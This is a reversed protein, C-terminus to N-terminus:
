CAARPLRGRRRSRVAVRGGVRAVPKYTSLVFDGTAQGLEANVMEFGWWRMAAALRSPMSTWNAFKRGAHRALRRFHADAAILLGFSVGRSRGTPVDWMPMRCMPSSTAGGHARARSFM